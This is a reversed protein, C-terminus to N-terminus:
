PSVPQSSNATADAEVTGAAEVLPSTAEAKPTVPKKRATAKRRTTKRAAKKAAPKDPTDDSM